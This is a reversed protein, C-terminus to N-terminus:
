YGAAAAQQLLEALPGLTKIEASIAPVLYYVVGDKSGVHAQTGPYSRYTYGDATQTAPSAPAIFQPYLAELYNLVRDTDSLTTAAPLVRATHMLVVNEETISACAVPTLPKRLPLQGLDTASTLLTKTCNRADVSTMAAFADLLSRSPASVHGFVTYGGNNSTNDLATNDALNIYWQNTATNAGNGKAMAVAGRVNPRSASFENSIAPDEPM